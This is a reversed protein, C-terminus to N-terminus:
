VRRESPGEQAAEPVAVDVGAERAEQTPQLAYPVQVQPLHLDAHGHARVQGGARPLDESRQLPVDGDQFPLAISHVFAFPNAVMRALLHLALAAENRALASRRRTPHTPSTRDSQVVVGRESSSTAEWLMGLSGLSGAIWGSAPTRDGLIRPRDPPRLVCRRPHTRYESSLWPQASGPGSARETSGRVTRKSKRRERARQTRRGRM